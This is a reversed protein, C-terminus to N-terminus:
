PSTPPLLYILAEDFRDYWAGWTHAQKLNEWHHVPYGKAKLADRLKITSARNDTGNDLYARLLKAKPSKAQVRKIMTEGAYWFSGSQAGALQMCDSRWFVASYSALGGMSAGIIGRSSAKALTQYRKDLLPALTDCLFNAYLPGKSSSECSYESMRDLQSALAVFALVAPRAKKAAFTAGAVQDFRSRTISENGDNVFLLPLRACRDHDHIPPLYVFVDRTHKLQPSTVQLWELRGKPAVKGWAPVVSNFGGLGAKPLGDWTVHRNKPDKFWQGKSTVFKYELRAGGLQKVVGRLDTGPVAALPDVGTKWGNFSGAVALAGSVSGQHIFAVRTADRLPVGGAQGVATWFAAVRAKRAADTTLPKLDALLKTWLQLTPAPAAPKCSMADPPPASDSPRADPTVGLDAGLHDAGRDTAALDGGRDLTSGADLAPQPEDACRLLAVALLPGVWIARKM